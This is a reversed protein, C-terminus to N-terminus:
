HVLRSVVRLLGNVRIPSEYIDLQIGAQKIRSEADDARRALLLKPINKFAKEGVLRRLTAMGLNLNTDTYDIVMADLLPKLDLVEKIDGFATIAAGAKQLVMRFPNLQTDCPSIFVVSTGTLTIPKTKPAISEGGIRWLCLTEVEAVAREIQIRLEQVAGLTAAPLPIIEDNPISGYGSSKAIQDAACIIASQITANDDLRKRQEDDYDHTNCIESLESPIFLRECLSVGIHKHNVGLLTQEAHITTITMNNSLNYAAIVKPALEGNYLLLRGVDHIMGACRGYGQDLGFAVVLEAAIQAVAISHRWWRLLWPRTDPSADGQQGMIKQLLEEFSANGVWKLAEELGIVKSGVGEQSTNAIRLMEIVVAPDQELLGILDESESTDGKTEERIEDHIAPFIIPLSSAETIEKARERTVRGISQTKEKWLTLDIPPADAENSGAHDLAEAEKAALIKQIRDVVVEPKLNQKVVFSDAGLALCKKVSNLDSQGSLMIVPLAKMSPARRITALTRVGDMMPMEIDMLVLDIATSAMYSIAEQGNGAQHIKYGSKGLFHSLLMRISSDDDVVLIHAKPPADQAPDEKTDPTDPSDTNKSADASEPNVPEEPAEDTSPTTTETSDAVALGM